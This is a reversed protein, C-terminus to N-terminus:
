RPARLKRPVPVILGPRKVKDTKLYEDLDLIGSTTREDVDRFEETDGDAYPGSGTFSVFRDGAPAKKGHKALAAELDTQKVAELTALETLFAAVPQLDEPSYP